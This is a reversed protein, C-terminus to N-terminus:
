NWLDDDLLIENQDGDKEKLKEMLRRHVSRGGSEIVEYVVQEFSMEFDRALGILKIYQEHDIRVVEGTDFNTEFEIRDTIRYGVSRQTEIVKVDTVDRLKNRLYTIIVRVHDLNTNDQRSNPTRIAVALQEQTVTRPKRDLLYLLARMEQFTLNLSRGNCTLRGSEEILFHVKRGPLTPQRGGAILRRKKVKM